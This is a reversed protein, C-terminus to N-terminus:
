SPTLKAYSLSLVRKRETKVTRAAFVGGPRLGAGQEIMPEMM